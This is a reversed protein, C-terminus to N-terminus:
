RGVGINISDPCYYRIDWKQPSDLFFFTAKFYLQFLGQRPDLWEMKSLAVHGPKAHVCMCVHMYRDTVLM